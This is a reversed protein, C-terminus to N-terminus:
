DNVFLYFEVGDFLGKYIPAGTTESVDKQSPLFPAISYIMEETGNCAPIIITKPNAVDMLTNIFSLLHDTYADMREKGVTAMTEPIGEEFIFNMRHCDSFWSTKEMDLHTFVKTKSLKNNIIRTRPLQSDFMAFKLITSAQSSTKDECNMVEAFESSYLYSTSVLYGSSFLSANPAYHPKNSRTEFAVKLMGEYNFEGRLIMKRATEDRILDLQKLDIPVDQVVDRMTRDFNRYFFTKPKNIRKYAFIESKTGFDKAFTGKFM